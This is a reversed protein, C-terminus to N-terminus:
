FPEISCLRSKGGHRPVQVVVVRVGPDGVPRPLYQSVSQSKIQVKILEGLLSQVELQRTNM